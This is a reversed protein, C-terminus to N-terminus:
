LPDSAYAGPPLPSAPAEEALVAGSGPRALLVDFRGAAGGPSPRLHARYGRAEALARFAEPDVAAAEREAALARLEEATFAEGDAALAGLLALAGAVRADPVQAVVLAEPAERELRRAVAELAPEEDWRVREAPPPPAGADVRLLVDYRFRTMENAHRGHKLRVEVGTVRPLRHPLARFLEPDLLLEKDRTTRRRVRDRLAAAALGGPAQALEVSAHFEEQLPLSRVDGVWLTGGPALAAVAGELVRLLYDVGPFYQVVSNIVVLDFRGAPIESFDDAARELLRVGPIDRGPRALRERLYGVAAPSLDTGWYEDCGPALRFLLLGTGCGIELVRRPRLAGLCGVTDEVWERMEEGPIPEGTYSSNWGVVNFAPDGDAAEGSYTDGFLSEWERVYESQLEGAPAEGAEGGPVVYAVLTGGGPEGSDAGRVLVTAERVDPHEALVAEVEGPEIRFGRLKVQQDIRGMFELLGDARWRARDGSRYMRAGPAGSFPDPVFREATLGPRGLYGRAVAPGGICLEGAVGTPVPEFDGDLLYVRRDGVPTGIPVSPADFDAPVPHCAAFVTCESPGYGNVLRLGPHSRLARRVHPVSVAEGGVMVQSVGALMAPCTDVVLNFFASTLWLTTVGHARVQEALQAPDPTRGPYLVCAGGTLLAPWLELTLADWSPSSHQLVVQGADFRAYDVDRFFGPIARHPVGTGKPRGTSGSTYIVYALHEPTVAAAPPGADGGSEEGDPAADLLVVEAAHEPFRELLRRQVLLVGAAADALMYALRGPPYAPDLPVYAGGAKLVALLGVIMEPSREACVGVRVDPGVGRRALRHALGNSRRELEAYTLREGGSVLATAGPTRAAQEAFLEHVCRAPAVAAEAAGSWRRVLQEREAAGVLPLAHVPREPDAAAAELLLRFHEAMREVTSGDFLDSRYEVHGLVRDGDEFLAVSVDFKAEIDGGALPEMEVEGRSLM